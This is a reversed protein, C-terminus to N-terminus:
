CREDARGRVFSVLFQEEEYANVFDRVAAPFQRIKRKEGDWYSSASEAFFLVNNQVSSGM